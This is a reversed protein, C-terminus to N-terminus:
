ACGILPEAGSKFIYNVMAIIDSSTIACDANVDAIALSPPAPGAKFVYNVLFIIDASSVTGSANVDGALGASGVEFSWVASVASDGPSVDFAHVRWYYRMGEGLTDPLLWTTDSLTQQAVPAAFLSDAALDLRYTLTDFPDPDMAPHWVFTVGSAQITGLDAPAVLTAAAPVDPVGDVWFSSGGSWASVEYGDSARARWWV